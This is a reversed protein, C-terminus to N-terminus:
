PAEPTVLAVHRATQIRCASRFDCYSCVDEINEPSTLPFRGTRIGLVFEEAMAVTARLLADFEEANKLIQNSRSSHPFARKSYRAAALGPVIRIPTKLQYYLGAAPQLERKLTGALISQIALMYLPLQLSVGRRIDDLKARVEGTKYDVVTFFDEGLEVRDVKGRLRLSGVKVPDDQSLYPDANKGTKGGFSVEFWGPVAEVDRKQEARLFEYVFSQRTASGGILLEADLQWFADPIDLETLKRELLRTLQVSAEAFIEETCGAIPPKKLDRWGQYFEFLAEHVLSGKERATLEEDLDQVPHLELLRRAFFQFPCRGYTELQTVSMPRDAIRSLRAQAQDSLAGTLMGAYGPMADRVMRHREVVVAHRVDNLAPQLAPPIGPSADADRRIAWALVEDECFLADAFPTRDEWREVEAIQLLSDLFSSRVLECEGERRPYTLYLHDAWNTIAQYFLYRNQWQSRREREKRRRASLFVEPEYPAPFEGDVLGAVIMTGMSLGRTEDISTILIGRGFQERVNYRERLVAMTLQDVYTRLGHSTEPGDRHELHEVMEDLADLFKAYSRVTRETLGQLDDSATIVLNDRLHIADLLRSLRAAFLRPPMPADIDSLVGALLEFERRAEQLHVAAAARERDEPLGGKKLAEEAQDIKRRWQSAGGVIRLMGSVEALVAVNLMHRDDGFSFFPSAAVRLVDGRRYRSLAVNLLNILHVVLPARSLQYRDTINAPIGYRHCEERFLDTYLQPRLMAVCVGALDLGPQTRVLHKILRCITQVERRRSSSGILTVSDRVNARVPPRNALFLFRAFHDAARESSPTRSITNVPFLRWRPANDRVPVFGMERFKRYNSELHGFLAPNGPEFDFLLTVALGPVSTLLQLIDLEPATFEDFGALSLHDARPFLRRFLPVFEDFPNSRGFFGILGPVDIAGHRELEADYEEAIGAIDQLKRQEDLPADRAEERMRWPSVGSEKLHLIVELIKEFTGVPLRSQSGRMGFYALQDQRKRVAAEFLLTQLPGSVLRHPAGSGQYLRTAFSELTYFPFAPTVPNGTLRMVERVLHRIRRRTPVIVVLDDFVPGALREEISRPSALSGHQLIVPM